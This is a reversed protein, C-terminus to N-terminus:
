RRHAMYWIVNTVIAIGAIIIVDITAGRRDRFFAIDQFRPILDAWGASFLSVATSHLFALLFWGVALGVLLNIPNNSTANM